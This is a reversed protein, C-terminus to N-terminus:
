PGHSHRAKELKELREVRNRLSDIEWAFLILIFLLAIPGIITLFAM